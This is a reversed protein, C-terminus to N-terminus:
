TLLTSTVGTERFLEESVTASLDLNERWNPFLRPFNKAGSGADIAWSSLRIPVM